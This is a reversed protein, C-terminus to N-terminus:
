SKRKLHWGNKDNLKHKNRHFHNATNIGELEANSKEKYLELLIELLRDYQSSFDYSAILKRINGDALSLLLSKM